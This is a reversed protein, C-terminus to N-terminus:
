NMQIFINNDYHHLMLSLLLQVPLPGLLRVDHWRMWVNLLVCESECVTRVFCPCYKVKINKLRNQFDLPLHALSHTSRTLPM